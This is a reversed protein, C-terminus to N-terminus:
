ERHENIFKSVISEYNNKDISYCTNHMGGEVIYLEKNNKKINYMDVAMSCPVLEDKDGHIFLIPIKSKAVIDIPRADKLNFKCKLKIKWSIIQYFPTIPIKYKKLKYKLIDEIDSYGAEAIIFKVKGEGKVSYLLAIAAGMSHGHIGIICNEGVKEKILNIWLDLDIVEYVGYTTYKGESKGHGRQDLLLINFNKERFFNIYKCCIHHDVGYGHLLIIVMESKKNANLYYGVLNFGEKSKLALKEFNEKYYDVRDYIKFKEMANFIDDESRKKEKVALNFMVDSIIIMLIILVILILTFLLM